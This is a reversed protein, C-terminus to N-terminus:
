VGRKGQRFRVNRPMRVAEGAFFFEAKRANRASLAVCRLLAAMTGRAADKTVQAAARPMDVRSFMEGAAVAAQRAIDGPAAAPLAAKGRGGRGPM